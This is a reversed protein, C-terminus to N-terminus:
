DDRLFQLFLLFPSRLAFGNCAIGFAHCLVFYNFVSTDGVLHSMCLLGIRGRPFPSFLPIFLSSPHFLFYVERYAQWEDDGELEGKGLPLILPGSKGWGTPM